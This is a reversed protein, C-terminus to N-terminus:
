LSYFIILEKFNLLSLNGSFMLTYFPLRHSDTATGGSHALVFAMIVVPRTKFSAPFTHRTPHDALWFVQRLGSHKELRTKRAPQTNVANSASQTHSQPTTGSLLCAIGHRSHLM